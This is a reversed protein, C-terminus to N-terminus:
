GGACFSTLAYLDDFQLHILRAAVKSLHKSRRAIGSPGIRRLRKAKGRSSAFRNRTKRQSASIAGVGRNDPQQESWVVLNGGINHFPQKKQPPAARALIGLSRPFEVFYFYEPIEAPIIKESKELRHCYFARCQAVGPRV